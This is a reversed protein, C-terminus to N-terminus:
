SPGMKIPHFTWNNWWKRSPNSFNRKGTKKRRKCFKKSLFFLFLSGLFLSLNAAASQWWCQVPVASLQQQLMLTFLPCTGLRTADDVDRKKRSPLHTPAEYRLFFRSSCFITLFLIYQIELM